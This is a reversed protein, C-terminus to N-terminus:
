VETDTDRFRIVILYHRTGPNRTGNQPMVTGKRLANRVIGRMFGSRPDRRGRTRRLVALRMRDENESFTHVM